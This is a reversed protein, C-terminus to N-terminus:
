LLRKQEESERGILVLALDGNDTLHRGSGRQILGSLDSFANLLHNGSYRVYAAVEGGQARRGGSESSERANAGLIECHTELQAILHAHAVCDERPAVLCVQSLPLVCDDGIIEALPNWRDG